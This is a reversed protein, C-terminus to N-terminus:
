MMCCGCFLGAEGLLDVSSSLEAAKLLGADPSSLGAAELMDAGASYLGAKGLRDSGASSLGGVEEELRCTGDSLSGNKAGADTAITFVFGSPRQKKRLTAIARFLSRCRAQLSRLPIAFSARRLKFSCNMASLSRASVTFKISLLM